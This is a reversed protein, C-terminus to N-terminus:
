VLLWLVGHVFLYRTNCRRLIAVALHMIEPFCNVSETEERTSHFYDQHRGRLNNPSLHASTHLISLVTGPLCLLFLHERTKNNRCWLIQILM